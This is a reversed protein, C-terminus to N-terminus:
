QNKAAVRNKAETILDVLSAQAAEFSVPIPGGEPGSHEQRDKQGLHQKGLWILMTRDGKEALQRQKRRLSINGLGRKARFVESFGLGYHESVRKEVTDTTTDFFAAIEHITCQLKCLNEFQKISIQKKPRGGPM